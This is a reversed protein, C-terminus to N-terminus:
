RWVDGMQNEARDKVRRGMKNWKIDGFYVHKPRVGNHFCDACIWVQEGQQGASNVDNFNFKKTFPTQDEVKLLAAAEAPAKQTCCTCEIDTEYVETWEKNMPANHKVFDRYDQVSDWDPKMSVQVITGRTM